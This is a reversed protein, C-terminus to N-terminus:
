GCTYNGLRPKAEDAPSDHAVLRVWGRKAINFAANEDRDLKLGCSGCEVVREKLKLETSCGCRSCTSSTGRPDVLVLQVGEWRAKYQIFRQLKSFPWSNLRGRKAKGEGNGRKHADRIGKLKELAIALKQSKAQDVVLKSVSHLIAEVRRKQRGRFRALLQKMKKLNHRNRRQIRERKLRYEHQITPVAKLDLKKSFGRQFALDVSRENLDVGLVGSPIAPKVLKSFAISASSETLTASGRRLSSDQLFRQHYSRLKLQIRLFERPKAPIRLTNGELKYAQNDLKLMLRKVRPKRGRWSNKLVSCAIECANLTYHTHLGYRKFEAYVAEILKFRSTIGLKLGAQIAKNVMQRFKEMLDILQEPPPHAFSFKVSKVAEVLQPSTPARRLSKLRM